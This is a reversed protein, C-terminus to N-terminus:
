FSHGPDITVADLNIAEVAGALGTARKGAEENVLSVVGSGAAQGARAACNVDKVLLAMGKWRTLCSLNTDASLNCAAIEVQGLEALFFENGVGKGLALSIVPEKPGTIQAEEPLVADQFINLSFVPHQLDASVPHFWALNFGGDGLM